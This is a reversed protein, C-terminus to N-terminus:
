KKLPLVAREPAWDGCAQDIFSQHVQDVPQVGALAIVQFLHGAM